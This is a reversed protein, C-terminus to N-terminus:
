GTDEAWTYAATQRLGLVKTFSPTLINSEIHNQVLQIASQSVEINVECYFCRYVLINSRPLQWRNVM